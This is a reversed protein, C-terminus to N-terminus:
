LLDGLAKIATDPNVSATVSLEKVSPLKDCDLWARTLVKECIL